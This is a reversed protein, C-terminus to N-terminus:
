TPNYILYESKYKGKKKKKQKLFSTELVNYYSAM